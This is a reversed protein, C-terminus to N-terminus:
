TSLGRPPNSAQPNALGLHPIGQASAQSCLRLFHLGIPRQRPRSGQRKRPLHPLPSRSRTQRTVPSARSPVSIATRWIGAGSRAVFMCGVDMWARGRGRGPQNTFLRSAPPVCGLTQEELEHQSAVRSLADKPNARPPANRESAPGLRASRRKSHCFIRGQTTRDQGM